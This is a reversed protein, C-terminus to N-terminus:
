KEATARSAGEALLEKARVRVAENPDTLAAQAIQKASPHLSLADLAMLRVQDSPDARALDALFNEPVAFGKSMATALLRQRLASDREGGRLADIVLSRSRQDPRGLLAEYALARAAPDADGLAVELERRSAWQEPGVPKLASASGKPYVWVTRLAAPLSRSSDYFFFTDFGSLLNRLAEDLVVGNVDASIQINELGEALVINVSAAAALQESVSQLSWNRFQASLRGKEFRIGSLQEASPAAGRPQDQQGSYSPTCIFAILLWVALRSTM